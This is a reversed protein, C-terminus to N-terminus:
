NKSAMKATVDTIVMLIPVFEVVEVFILKQKVNTLIKVILEMALITQYVNVNMPASEILASKAKLILANWVTRVPLKKLTGSCIRSLREM